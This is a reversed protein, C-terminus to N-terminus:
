EKVFERVPVWKIDRPTKGDPLRAVFWELWGDECQRKIWEQCEWKVTFGAQIQLLDNGVVYVTHARAV